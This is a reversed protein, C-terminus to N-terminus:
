QDLYAQIALNAICTQTVGKGIAAALLKKSVDPSLRVLGCPKKGRKAAPKKTTKTKKSTKKM